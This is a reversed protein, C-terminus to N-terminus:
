IKYQNDINFGLLKDYDTSAIVTHGINFVLTQNSRSLTMCQFKSPNAKMFNDQFWNVSIQSAEELVSKVVNPDKHCFALTNDDAYNFVDCKTNLLWLLDNIFVNFLVPGVISGQPVGRELYLWNSKVNDLKVRQPRRYSYSRIFNVANLSFGYNALQALMLGHPISDFAKSLDM